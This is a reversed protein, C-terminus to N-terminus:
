KGLHNFLIGIVIVILTMATTGLWYNLKVKGNTKDLRQIIESHQKLNEEHNKQIQKYIDTNTVKIFTKDNSEKSM